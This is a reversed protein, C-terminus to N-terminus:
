LSPIFHRGGTRTKFPQPASALQPTYTELPIGKFATGPRFHGEEARSGTAPVEAGGAEEEM